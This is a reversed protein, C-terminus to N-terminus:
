GHLHRCYISSDGARSGYLSQPCSDDFVCISQTSSRATAVERDLPSPQISRKVFDFWSIFHPLCPHDGPVSRLIERILFLLACCASLAANISGNCFGGCRCFSGTKRSRGSSFQNVQTMRFRLSKPQRVRVVFLEQFCRIALRQTGIGSLGLSANILQGQPERTEHRGLGGAVPPPISTQNGYQLEGRGHRKEDGRDM